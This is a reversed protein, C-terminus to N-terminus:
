KIQLTLIGEAAFARADATLGARNLARVVRARDASSFNGIGADAAVSLALLGTEGKLGAASAQDLAALRAPSASSRPGEFAAFEGRAQASMSVGEAPALAWLIMAAPQAPSKAGGQAGREVLRDLTPGDAQGSAAAILADILAMDDASAASDSVLDSRIARAADVDGAAVAARIFLLPDQLPARAGVLAVIVPRTSVSAETFAVIGKTRRLFALASTEAATLDGAALEPPAAPVSLHAAIAPSANARAADMNLGLKRSLAYEVGSKLSADGPNGAGAILAGMLRPYASGKPEQATALTLTLQAAEVQGGTAQCFARLRLWYPNGRNETVADAIACARGDDGVILASEAAAQSLASSSSLNPARRLIAAAGEAEGLALLGQVRAAGLAPDNGVGDPGSAGTSLLRRALNQTAPSLGKASIKPLADRLIAPSTGRWLDSGLGTDPGVPTSFLDPPALTTVEVQALASGSIALCLAAPLVSLRVM